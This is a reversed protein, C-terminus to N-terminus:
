HYYTVFVVLGFLVICFIILAIIIWTLKKNLIHRKTEMEIRETESAQKLKERRRAEYFTAYGISSLLFSWIIGVFLRVGMDDKPAVFLFYVVFVVLYVIPFEIYWKM